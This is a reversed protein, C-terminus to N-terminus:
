HNGQRNRNGEEIITQIATRIEKLPLEMGFKEQYAYKLQGRQNFILVGGLTMGEGKGIITAGGDVGKQKARRKISNVTTFLTRINKWNVKRDGLQQYLFREKDLFFPFKFHEDYLRLLGDNDVNVEKIVAWSSVSRNPFETSVLKSLDHGQEHCLLCGPRKVVFCVSAKHTTSKGSSIGSSTTVYLKSKQHANIVNMMPEETMMRMTGFSLDLQTLRKTKYFNSNLQFTSPLPPLVDNPVPTLTTDTAVGVVACGVNVVVVEEEDM